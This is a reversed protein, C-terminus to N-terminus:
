AACICYDRGRAPVFFGDPWNVFNATGDIPDVAWIFDHKAPRETSEEGIIDHKPFSEALRERIIREVKHDIESVPDKWQDERAATKYRVALLGGVARTIEAGAIGALEIAASEIERLTERPVAVGANPAPQKEVEKLPPMKSPAKSKNAKAAISM